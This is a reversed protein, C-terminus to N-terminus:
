SNIEKELQNRQKCLYEAEHNDLMAQSDFQSKMDNRKANTSIKERFVADNVLKQLYEALEKYNGVEYMYGNIGDMVLEPNGGANSVVIPLGADLYEMVANSFGESESTLVGIDFYRLSARPESVTGTFHFNNELSYQRLLQKLSELYVPDPLHGVLYYDISVRGSKLINAAKVLDEIRKVPRINAVLVINVVRSNDMRKPVWDPADGVKTYDYSEMGNYIVAISNQPKWEKEQTYKAVALSNCILRTKTFRFFRLLWLKAPTYWIGMDRRSTYTKIETGIMLPPLVLAVDNFYGHVVDVQKALMQQRFYLLGRFSTLSALSYINLCHLPCPFDIINRTFDTERFVYLEVEHGRDVMGNILMYLQRETGGNVGYLYDIIYVIKM